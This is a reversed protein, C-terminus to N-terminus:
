AAAAHTEALGSDALVVPELALDLVEGISMVPHFAIAARVDEPVDDLDARNREPIIVDTIGAAHAALVKQKLGGIPLVRGQLTIEGTMGVTHKVPRGPLLSALATTM